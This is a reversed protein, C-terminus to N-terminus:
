TMGENSGTSNAFLTDGSSFFATYSSAFALIAIALFLFLLVSAFDIGVFLKDGEEVKVIRAIELLKRLRPVAAKDEGLHSGENKRVERMQPSQIEKNNLAIFRNRYKLEIKM